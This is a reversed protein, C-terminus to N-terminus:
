DNIPGKSFQYHNAMYVVIARSSIEYVQAAEKESLGTANVVDHEVVGDMVKTLAWILEKQTPADPINMTESPTTSMTANCHPCHGSVLRSYCAQRCRDVKQKAFSSQPPDASWLIQSFTTPLRDFTARPLPDKTATPYSECFNTVM